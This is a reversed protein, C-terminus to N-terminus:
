MFTEDIKLTWKSDIHTRELSLNMQCKNILAIMHPNIEDWANM